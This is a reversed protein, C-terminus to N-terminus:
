KEENMSLHVSHVIQWTDPTGNLQVLALQDAHIREPISSSLRGTIERRQDDSLFGYFLSLHPMYSHDPELGTKSRATKRLEILQDSRKIQIYLSQYNNNLSSIKLSDPELPKFNNALDECIAKLKEFPMDDPCPTLTIHPHFPISHFTRALEGIIKQLENARKKEPLLWIVYGYIPPLKL